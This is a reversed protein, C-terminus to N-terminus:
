LGVHPVEESVQVLALPYEAEIYAVDHLNCREGHLVKHGDGGDLEFEGSFVDEFLKAEESNRVKAHACLKSEEMLQLLHESFVDVGPSVRLNLTDNYIVTLHLSYQCPLATSIAIVNRGESLGRTEWMRM